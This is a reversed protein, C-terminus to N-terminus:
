PRKKGIREFYSDPIDEKNKYVNFVCSCPGVQEPYDQQYIPCYGAENVCMEGIPAHTCYVPFNKGNATIPHPTCLAGGAEETYLGMDWLIQGAGCPEMVFWLKKDDEGLLKMRCDHFMRPANIAARCREKWPLDWYGGSVLAVNANYFYDHMYEFYKDGDGNLAKYLGTEAYHCQLLYGDHLGKFMARYQDFIEVADKGGLKELKERMVESPSMELERIEEPTFTTIQGM